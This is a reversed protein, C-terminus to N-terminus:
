DVGFRVVAYALLTVGAVIMVVLPGAFALAAAAVVGFM